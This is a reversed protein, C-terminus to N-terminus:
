FAPVERYLGWPIRLGLYNVRKRMEINESDM